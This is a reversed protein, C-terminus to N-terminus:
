YNVGTAKASAEWYAACYAEDKALAPFWGGVPAGAWGCGRPAFYTRGSVVLTQPESAARILPLAGSESSQMFTKLLTQRDAYRWLSSATIGPHAAVATIKPHRRALERMFLLNALKTEAYIADAAYDAGGCKVFDIAFGGGAITDAKRGRWAALSSVAVVRPAEALELSPMLLGTLAFHGLHNAAMQSEFGDVSLAYPPKMVGANNVLVDLPRGSNNWDDAFRRVSALDSLDLSQLEFAASPAEKRLEALAAEGREKSRCALVVKAGAQGLALATFYGTGSNAGTVVVTKGSVSTPINATTWANGM